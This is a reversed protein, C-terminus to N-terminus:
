TRGSEQQGYHQWYGTAETNYPVPKFYNYTYYRNPPNYTRGEDYTASAGAGTWIANAQAIQTTKAFTTAKASLLLKDWLTTSIQGTYVKNPAARDLKNVTVITPSFDVNKAASDVKNFSFEATTKGWQANIKGYFDPSYYRDSAVGALNQTISDQVGWAGFFWLHDKFLPLGM